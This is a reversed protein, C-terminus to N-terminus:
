KGEMLFRIQEDTLKGRIKGYRYNNRLIPKLIISALIFAIIELM